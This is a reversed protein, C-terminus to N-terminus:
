VHLSVWSLGLSCVLLALSVWNKEHAEQAEGYIYNVTVLTNTFLNAGSLFALQRISNSGNMFLNPLNVTVGLTADSVFNFADLLVSWRIWNTQNPGLGGGPSGTNQEQGGSPSIEFGLTPVMNNLPSDVLASM